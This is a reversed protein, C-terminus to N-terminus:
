LHSFLMLAQKKETWDIIRMWGVGNRNERIGKLENLYSSTNNPETTNFSFIHDVQSSIKRTNNIYRQILILFSPYDPSFKFVGSCVATTQPFTLFLLQRPYFLFFCNSLSFQFSFYSNDISILFSVKDLSFHVFLRRWESIHRNLANIHVSFNRLNLM